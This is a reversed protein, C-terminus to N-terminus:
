KPESTSLEELPTVLWWGGGGGRLLDGREERRGRVGERRGGEDRGQFGLVGREDGERARDRREVEFQFLEFVPVALDPPFLRAPDDIRKPQLPTSPAADANLAIQAPDLQSSARPSSAIHAFRPKTPRLLVIAVRFRSSGRAPPILRLGSKPVVKREVGIGPGGKGALATEHATEARGIM